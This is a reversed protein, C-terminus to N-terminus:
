RRLDERMRLYDARTVQGAAYRKELIALAESSPVQQWGPAPAQAPPPQPVVRYAVPPSRRRGALVVVLVILAVVAAPAFLIGGDDWWFEDWEWWDFAWGAPFGLLLVVLLGIGLWLFVQTTDDRRPEEDM